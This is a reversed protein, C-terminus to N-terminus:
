SADQLPRIRGYLFADAGVDGASAEFGVLFCRRHCRIHIMAPPNRVTGAAASFQDPFPDVHEATGVTGDPRNDPRLINFPNFPGEGPPVLFM